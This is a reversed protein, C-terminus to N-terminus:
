QNLCDAPRGLAEQMLDLESLMSLLRARAERACEDQGSRVLSAALEQQRIIRLKQLAIQHEAPSVFKIEM